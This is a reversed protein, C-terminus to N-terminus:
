KCLKVTKRLFERAKKNLENRRNSVGGKGRVDEPGANLADRMRDILYQEIQRFQEPSTGVSASIRGLRRMIRNGHEKLRRDVEVSRGTYAGINDLFLYFGAEIGKEIGYEFALCGGKRVSVRLAIAGSGRIASQITQVLQLETWFAAFGSPDVYMVPNVHAYLYKHLTVPDTAVGEFTDMTHFRGTATNLYRARLFFMDFDEDWQEGTFRYHNETTGISELLVGWADYTYEDTVTGADDTLARASGLGDYLYFSQTWSDTDADYRDQSILDLGYSYIVEVQGGQAIEEVVQAYGTLNNRDVLFWTIEGPGGFPTVTKRIRDGNGDYVVEIVTGDSKERRVLRNRWDYYDALTVAPEAYSASSTTNGNDDYTHSDLWNNESYTEALNLIQNIDSTQSLRNGVLDYEWDTTGDFLPNPSGSITEATLRYLNDYSYAVTRGSLETVGTRHGTSLLSFSYSSLAAFSTDSVMLNKLRNKRDYTWTHTVGNSYSLTELNGNADYTYGHELPPQAAGSDTVTSLRNLGDYDYALNLGGTSDSSTSQLNNAADYVYNLTGAANTKSLLNGREDYNHTTTGSADVM